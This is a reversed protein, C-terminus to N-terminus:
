SGCQEQASRRCADSDSRIAWELVALHAHIPRLGIEYLARQQDYM